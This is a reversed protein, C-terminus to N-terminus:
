KFDSKLSFSGCASGPTAPPCVHLYHWAPPSFIALPLCTISGVLCLFSPHRRVEGRPPGPCCQQLPLSTAFLVVWSCKAARGARGSDGVQLFSSQLLQRRVGALELARSMADHQVGAGSSTSCGQGRAGSGGRQWHGSHSVRGMSLPLLTEFCCSNGEQKGTPNPACRGALGREEQCGQLLATGQESSSCRPRLEDRHGNSQGSVQCCGVGAADTAEMGASM